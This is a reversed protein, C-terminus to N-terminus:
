DNFKTEKLILLNIKTILISRNDYLMIIYVTEYYFITEAMEM